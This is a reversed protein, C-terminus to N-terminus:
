SSWFPRGGSRARISFMKLDFLPHLLPVHITKHNKHIGPCTACFSVARQGQVMYSESSIVATQVRGALFLRSYGARGLNFTHNLAPGQEPESETCCSQTFSMDEVVRHRAEHTSGFETDLQRMKEFCGQFGILGDIFLGQSTCMQMRGLWLHKRIRDLLDEVQWSSLFLTSKLSYVLCLLDYSEACNGCCIMYERRTSYGM